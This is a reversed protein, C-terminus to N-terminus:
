NDAEDESDEDPLAEQDTVPAAADSALVNGNGDVVTKQVKMQRAPKNKSKNGTKSQIYSSNSVQEEYAAVQDYHDNPVSMKDFEQDVIQYRSYQNTLSDNEQVDGYSTCGVTALGVTLCLFLKKM